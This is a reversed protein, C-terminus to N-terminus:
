SRAVYAWPLRRTVYIYIYKCILIDMWVVFKVMCLGYRLQVYVMHLRPGQGHMHSRTRTVGTCGYIAMCSWIHPQSPTPIPHGTQGTEDLFAIKPFHESQSSVGKFLHAEVLAKSGYWNRTMQLDHDFTIALINDVHRTVFLTIM